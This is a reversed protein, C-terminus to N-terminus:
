ENEELEEEEEKVLSGDGPSSSRGGGSCRSCSLALCLCDTGCGPSEGGGKRHETSSM